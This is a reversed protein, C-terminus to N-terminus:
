AWIVAEARAVDGPLTIKFNTADGPVIAVRVGLAELAASEDTFERDSELLRVLPGIRDARVAQPTQALRLRSRDLTAEVTDDPAAVKVTDTAPIALLGGGTEVTRRALTPIAEVPPFPRAADHVLVVDCEAAAARLGAAVSDQRRPGGAVWRAPVPLAPFERPVGEPLGSAPGVLVVEAVSDVSALRALSWEFVLRGALPLFQKAVGGGHRRGEGAAVLVVRLVLPRDPDLTMAPPAPRLRPERPDAPNM